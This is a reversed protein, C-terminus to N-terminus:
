TDQDTKYLNLRPSTILRLLEDKEELQPNILCYISQGERTDFLDLNNHQTLIYSNEYIQVYAYEANQAAAYKFFLALLDYLIRHEPPHLIERIVITNNEGHCFPICGAIHGNRDHITFFLNNDDPDDTYKWNLHERSKFTTYCTNRYADLLPDIDSDLRRTVQTRYRDFNFIWGDPYLLRLLPNAITGLITSAFAPISLKDRLLRDVKFLRTYKRTQGLRTYGAYKVIPEAKINPFGYIFDYDSDVISRAISRILMLAPGFSRHNSHIFFDGHVAANVIQNGFQFRRPFLSGMGITQNSEEHKVLWVKAIGDPNAQYFWAYKEDLHKTNNANWFRIISDKDEICDAPIITYSM